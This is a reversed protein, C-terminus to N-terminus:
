YSRWTAANTAAEQVKIKVKADKWMDRAWSGWLRAMNEVTPDVDILIIGWEDLLTEPNDACKSIMYVMSDHMHLVLHHDFNTDLYQRWVKKVSGFDLGLVMGKDNVPGILELDVWWSHGHLHYCKSDPQESLRHAMEVNHRVVISQVNNSM